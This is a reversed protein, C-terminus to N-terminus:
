KEETGNRKEEQEPLKRNEDLEVSQIYFNFETMGRLQTIVWTDLLSLMEIGYMLRLAEAIKKPQKPGHPLAYVVEKIDDAQEDRIWILYYRIKMTRTVLPRRM